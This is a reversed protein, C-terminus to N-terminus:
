PEYLKPTGDANLIPTIGMTQYGYVCMYMVKTNKDYAIVCGDEELIQELTIYENDVNGFNDEGDIVHAGCGTLGGVTLITALLIALLRKKM